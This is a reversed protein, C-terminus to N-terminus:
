LAEMEQIVSDTGVVECFEENLSALHITHLTEADFTQREFSKGYTATADKVLLIRGEGVVGLNAAMRTTTSVCHDTTLGVIVLDTIQRERIAAELNTGIFGSNVNKTFTLEGPQPTAYPQFAANGETPHLASSPDTSHHRVHFISGPEVVARFAELLKIINSEFGPTSRSNGWHTPHNFGQQIDILLLGYRPSATTM